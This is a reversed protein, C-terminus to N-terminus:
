LPHDRVEQVSGRRPMSDKSEHADPVTQVLHFRIEAGRDDGDAVEVADM